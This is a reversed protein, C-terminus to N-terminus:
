FIRCGWSGLEEPKGAGVVIVRESLASTMNQDEIGEVFAASVWVEYGPKGDLETVGVVKPYDFGLVSLSLAQEPAKALFAAVMGMLRAENHAAFVRDPAGDGDIDASLGSTIDLKPPTEFIGDTERSLLAVMAAEEKDTPVLDAKSRQVVGKASEPWIAYEATDLQPSEGKRGQFNNLQSGRCPAEGPPGITATGGNDLAAKAGEPALALCEDSDSPLAKKGDHCVIPALLGAMVHYLVIPGAPRTVAAAASATAPASLSPVPVNVVPAPGPTCGTLALPLAVAFLARPLSSSRLLSPRRPM